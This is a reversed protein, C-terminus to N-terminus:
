FFGDSDIGYEAGPIAPISPQGGTAITIHDATYQEGDVEVTKNNVFRGYGKIVTVNNNGLVRDYSQHIRGIYAERSAVLKGWDFTKLQEELSVDFGYDPGYRLADAVQGAFWMAKKPVCGVNVCTGGLYKAEILGVRKGHMAARNATAIGGSGGGIVLYDFHKTMSTEGSVYTDLWM